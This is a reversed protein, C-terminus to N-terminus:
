CGDPGVQSSLGGRGYSLQISCRVELGLTPPEFGEPRVFIFHGTLQGGESKSLVRINLVRLEADLLFGVHVVLAWQLNPVETWCRSPYRHTEGDLSRPSLM